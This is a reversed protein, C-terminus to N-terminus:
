SKVVGEKRREKTGENREEKRGEVRRGEKKQGKGIKNVVCKEGGNRVESLYFENM